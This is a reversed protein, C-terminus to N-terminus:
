RAEVTVSRAGRSVGIWSTATVVARYRGPKVYAGSATKGNWTWRYTTASLTRSTWIRRVLTSGQYIAVTVSAARRLRFSLQSRQGARPDFSGDSWAMSAITRDVNVSIDRIARNGAQDYGDVRYRYRGDYVITGRANRGDWSAAGATGAVLAWSRVTAGTRNIIRGTGTIRQSATWRLTTKDLRGDGDPSISYPSATSGVTPAVTDM